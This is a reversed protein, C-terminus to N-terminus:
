YPPRKPTSQRTEASCTHLRALSESFLCKWM